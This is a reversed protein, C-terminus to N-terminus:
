PQYGVSLTAADVGAVQVTVTKSAAQSGLDPMEATLSQGHPSVASATAVKGDVLVTLVSLAAPIHSGFLTFSEGRRPSAPASRWLATTGVDLAYSGSGPDFKIRHIPDLNLTLANDVLEFLRHFQANTPMSTSEPPSYTDPTAPVATSDTRGIDLSAMLRGIDSDSLGRLSALLALATTSRSIPVRAGSVGGLSSWSADFVVITRIRIVPLGPRNSIGAVTPGKFAELFYTKGVQASQSKFHALSFSGTASSLTSALTAQTGPDILTVVSATAIDAMTAAASFQPGFDVDGILPPVPTPVGAPQQCATGLSCIGVSLACVAVTGAGLNFQPRM